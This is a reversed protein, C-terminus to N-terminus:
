ALTGMTMTEPAEGSVALTLGHKAALSVMAVALVSDGGLAGFPSSDSLAAAEGEELDLVHQWVGRLLSLADAASAGHRPLFPLPPRAAGRAQMAQGVSRSERPIRALREAICVLPAEPPAGAWADFSSDASEEAAAAAAGGERQVARVLTAGDTADRTAELFRRLPLNRRSGVVRVAVRDAVRVCFAESSSARLLAPAPLPRKWANFQNTRQHLEILREESARIELGLSAHYEALSGTQERLARRQGHELQSLAEMPNDDVFLCAADGKDLVRAIRHASVDCRRLLPASADPPVAEARGLAQWVARAEGPENRSAIALLVGRAHLQKLRRQLALHHAECVLRAEGLAHSWLTYDCDVVVLKLPPLLAPVSGRVAAAGLACWMQETYPMHGIEDGLADHVDTVAYQRALTLADIIALRPESSALAKLREAAAALLPAHASPRGPCICIVLRRVNALAGRVSVLFTSLDDEFRDADFPAHGRQWDDMRLLGVCCAAGRFAQPGRLEFELQGYAAFSVSANLGAQELWFEAWRRVPDCTFTSAIAVFPQEM